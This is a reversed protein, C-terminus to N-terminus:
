PHEVHHPRYVLYELGEERLSYSPNKEHSVKHRILLHSEIPCWRSSKPYIREFMLLPNRVFALFIFTHSLHIRPAIIERSM